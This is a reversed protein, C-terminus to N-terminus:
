WEELVLGPVRSYDRKNRTVLTLKHELAIGAIMADRFDIPTGKMELGGFILGAREASGLSLPLTELRSLLKQAERANEESFRSKSAGYFLEFASVTTTAQRGEEDLKDAKAKARQQQRLLGVLLDTDLCKM